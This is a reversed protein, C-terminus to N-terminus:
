YPQQLAECLFTMLPKGRKILDVTTDLLEPSEIDSKKLQCLGIFSKLRLDEIQPHDKPFGKPATKLREDHLEFYENFKKNKRFRNWTVPCESIHERIAKIADSPPRWIGIGLFCENPAIHVYVGPAHVDKGAQHRFHIGINTKYPTKDKSFRTDKYIRMLSGGVKKPEAHLLPAVRQLPQQMAGIFSLAPELFFNEYRIKNEAFWERNNNKTLDNLFKHTGRPFGEFGSM